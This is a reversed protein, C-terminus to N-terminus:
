KEQEILFQIVTRKERDSQSEVNLRESVSFERAADVKRGLRRYALGLRYHAAALRPDYEVARALLPL